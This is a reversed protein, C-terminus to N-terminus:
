IKGFNDLASEAVLRGKDTLRIIKEREDWENVEYRLWGLGDPKTATPEMLRKYTNKVSPGIKDGAVELIQTRTLPRGVSDASAALMFFALQNISLRDTAAEALYMLFSSAGGLEKARRALSGGTSKPSTNM